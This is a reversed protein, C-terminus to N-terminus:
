AQPASLLLCGRGRLLGPQARPGQPLHPNDQQGLRWRAGWETRTRHSSSGLSIHASLTGGGPKDPM